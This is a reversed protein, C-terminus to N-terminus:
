AARSPSKTTPFLTGRLFPRADADACCQKDDLVRVPVLYVYGLQHILMVRRGCCFLKTGITQGRKV